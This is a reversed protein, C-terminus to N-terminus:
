DVTYKDKLVLTKGVDEVEFIQMRESGAPSNPGHFALMLRNDFTKFMMGHGSNKEMLLKNQQVWPGTLKGTKSEAIGIAYGGDKYSSWIM